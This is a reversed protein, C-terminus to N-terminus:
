HLTLVLNSSKTPDAQSIVTITITNGTMPMATPATYLYSGYYSNAPAAITGVSTGGGTIGNVQLTIANNASGVAYASINLTGGLAVSTSSPTYFGTTISPATITFRTEVSTAGAITRLDVTGAPLLPGGGYPGYLPPTAPATYAFTTGGSQATPSGADTPPITSTGNTGVLVWSVNNSPANTTATFTVSNGVPISAPQPSVSVTYTPLSFLNGLSPGGGCGFLSSIFPFTALSFAVRALPEPQIRM